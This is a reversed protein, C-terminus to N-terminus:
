IREFDIIKNIFNKFNYKWDEEWFFSTNDPMVWDRGILDVIADESDLILILDSNINSVTLSTKIAIPICQYLISEFLVTSFDGLVYKSKSLSEHLVGLDITIGNEKFPKYVTDLRAIESPHPRFVIKYGKKLLKKNLHLLNKVRMEPEIGNSAFLLQNEKKSLDAESVNETLHPNGINIVPIPMRCNENWYNGYSLFYDPLYKLYETSLDNHYNYAPHNLSILGHQYEVLIINNDKCAVCLALKAYGYCADEIFVIKPKVRDFLKEYFIYKIKYEKCLRILVTEINTWFFSTRFEWSFNKKLFEVFDNVIKLDNKNYKIFHRLLRSKILIEDHAFVNKYTRPRKYSFHSSQEILISQDAYENAFYETLRNFYGDKTEFNSVDSGFFIFDSQGAKSCRDKLTTKLYSFANAYNIKFPDFPYPIGVKEYFATNIIQHRIMPWLHVKGELVKFRYLESNKEIELFQDIPQM